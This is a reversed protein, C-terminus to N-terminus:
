KTTIYRHNPQYLPYSTHIFFSSLLDYFYLYLQNCQCEKSQKNELSLMVPKYSSLFCKSPILYLDKHVALTLAFITNARKPKASSWGSRRSAFAAAPRISAMRCSGCAGDRGGTFQVEDDISHV